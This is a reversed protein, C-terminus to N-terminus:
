HFDNIKEDLESDEENVGNMLRDEFADQRMEDEMSDEGAYMDDMM